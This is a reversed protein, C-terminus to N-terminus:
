EGPSRHEFYTHKCNKCILHEGAIYSKCHCGSHTCELSGTFSIDSSNHDHTDSVTNTQAIETGEDLEATSYVDAGSDFDADSTFDDFFDFDLYDLLQGLEAGILVALSTKFITSFIKGFDIKKGNEQFDCIEDNLAFLDHFLMDIKEDEKDNESDEDEEIAENYSKPYSMNHDLIGAIWIKSDYMYDEYDLDKSFVLFPEGNNKNKSNRLLKFLTPFQKMMAKWDMNDKMLIDEFGDLFPLYAIIYCSDNGKPTLYFNLTKGKNAGNKFYWEILTLRPSWELGMRLNENDMFTTLGYSRTESIFEKM